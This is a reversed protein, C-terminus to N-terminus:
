YQLDPNGRFLNYIDPDEGSDSVGSAPRPSLDTNGDALGHHMDFSDGVGPQISTMAGSIRRPQHQSLDPNGDALGHHFDFDDSASVGAAFVTAAFAAILQKM